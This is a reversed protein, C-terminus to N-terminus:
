PSNPQSPKVTSTNSPDQDMTQEKNEIYNRRQEISKTYASSKGQINDLSSTAANSNTAANTANINIGEYSTVIEPTPQLKENNEIEQIKNMVKEYSANAAKTSTYINNVVYAVAATALVAVTSAAAVNTGPVVTVLAVAGATIFAACLAEAAKIGYMKASKFDGKVAMEIALGGAYVFDTSARALAAVSMAGVTAFSLGIALGTGSLIVAALATTTLATVLNLGFASNVKREGLKARAEAPTIKGAELDALVNNHKETQLKIYSTITASINIVPHCVTACIDGVSKLLTHEKLFHAGIEGGHDAMQTIPDVSIKHHKATNQEEILQKNNEDTIEENNNPTKM